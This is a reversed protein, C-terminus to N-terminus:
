AAFELGSRVPGVLSVCLSPAVHPVGVRARDRDTTALDGGGARLSAAWVNSVRNAVAMGRRIGGGLKQQPLAAAGKGLGSEV